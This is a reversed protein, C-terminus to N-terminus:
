YSQLSAARCITLSPEILFRSTQSARTGSSHGLGGAVAGLPSSGRVYPALGPFGFADDGLADQRTYLPQLDIGEYTHTVLKQEFSAGKLMAEAADRWRDYAVPPFEDEISFKQALMNRGQALLRAQSGLSSADLHHLSVGWCELRRIVGKRTFLGYFELLRRNVCSRSFGQTHEKSPPVCHEHPSGRFTPERRDHSNWIREARRYSRQYRRGHLGSPTAGRWAKGLIEGGFKGARDTGVVGASHRWRSLFRSPGKSGDGSRLGRVGGLRESM